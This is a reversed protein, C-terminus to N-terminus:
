FPKSEKAITIGAVVEAQEQQRRQQEITGIVEGVRTYGPTAPLNATGLVEEASRGIERLQFEGKAKIEALQEQAEIDGRAAKLKLERELIAAKRRSSQIVDQFQEGRREEALVRSRAGTAFTLGKEAAQDAISLLDEDYARTVRAMEAQQELSIDGLGSVLDDSIEKRVRATIDSARQLDGQTFAIKSEVEGLTLALKARAFPEVNAKAQEIIGPLAASIDSERGETFATFLTEILKKDDTPLGSFEPLKTYDPTPAPAAVVYQPAYQKVNSGELTEWVYSGDPNTWKVAQRGSGDPATILSTTANKQITYGYASFLVGTSTPTSTPTPTPTPAPAIPAPTPTRLIGLLKLNQEATGTYNTIGKQQALVARSSYDSPKGVSKLYDVISTGTYAM